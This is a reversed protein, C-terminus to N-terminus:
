EKSINAKNSLTNQFEKTNNYKKQSKGYEMNAEIMYNDVLENLEKIYEDLEKYKNTFEGSYRFLNCLALLEFLNSNQIAQALNEESDRSRMHLRSFYRHKNVDIHKSLNSNHNRMIHLLGQRINWM